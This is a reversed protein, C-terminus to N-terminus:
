ESEETEEKPKVQRYRVGREHQKYFQRKAQTRATFSGAKAQVQVLIKPTLSFAERTVAESGQFMNKLIGFIAVPIIVILLPFFTAVINYNAQTAGFVSPLPSASPSVLWALMFFLEIIFLATAIADGDDVSGGVQEFFSQVKSM